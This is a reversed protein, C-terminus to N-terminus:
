KMKYILEVAGSTNEKTAQLKVLKEDPLMEFLEIGDPLVVPMIFVRIEDILGANLFLTNIQGGGILWIDKGDQKKLNQFFEVTKETVFEVHGNNELNRNRTVVYNTKGIYPFEIDWGKIQRYTKGGQITTDISDYFAAYGHDTKDPNPLKELWDVSGDARAIKGNLSAAIYLIIKKM